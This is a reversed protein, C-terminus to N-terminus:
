PRSSAGVSERLRLEFEAEFAAKTLYAHFPIGAIQLTLTAAAVGMNLLRSATVIHAHTHPEPMAMMHRTAAQRVETDYGTAGVWDHFYHISAGFAETEQERTRTLVDLIPMDIHGTVTSRLLGRRPRHVEIRGKESELAAVKLVDRTHCTPNAHSTM